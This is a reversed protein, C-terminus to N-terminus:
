YNELYRKVEWDSVDLRYEDWEKTKAILYREYTYKGLAEQVLSDKKLEELSDHLSPPLQSINLEQLKKDDFDYLNEEISNPPDIKNKMGDLGTKLMVAFALYINCSPDPSRLEIRASKSKGKSIRPIRILASRNTTAWSIYVPAEYGSTLRKYSNVTPSIVASMAKIHKLQGAVFHKAMRSLNYKDNEDYFINEEGKFLSQHIHMGSGNIGAIPKPM